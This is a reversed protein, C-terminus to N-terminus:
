NHWSYADGRRESELLLFNFGNRKGGDIDWVALEPNILLVDTDLAQKVRSTLVYAELQYNKKEESYAFQGIQSQNKKVNESLNEWNPVTM